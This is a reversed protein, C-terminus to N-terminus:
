DRAQSKDCPLNGYSDGGNGQQLEITLAKGVLGIQSLPSSLFNKKMADYDMVVSFRHHQGFAQELSLSAFSVEEREIFVYANVQLQKDLFNQTSM